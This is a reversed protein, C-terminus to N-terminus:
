DLLFVLFTAVGSPRQGAVILGSMAEGDGINYVRLDAVEAPDYVAALAQQGKEPEEINDLIQEVAMQTDFDEIGRLEALIDHVEDEPRRYVVKWPSM